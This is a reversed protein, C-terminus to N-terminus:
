KVIIYNKLKSFRGTSIGKVDKLQDISKYTKIKNRHEIIKEATKAGIGPLTTLENVGASNINVKEKPLEKAKFVTESKTMLSDAKNEFNVSYFSSDSKSYDFQHLENVENRYKLYYAALGVM